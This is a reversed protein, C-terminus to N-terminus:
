IKKASKIKNVRFRKLLFLKHKISYLIKVKAM